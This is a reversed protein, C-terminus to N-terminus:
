GPLPEDEAPLGSLRASEAWLQRGTDPNYSAGASRKEARDAFYRGTLGAVEPATALWVVTDAGREPTREFPRALRTMLGFWGGTQRGFGTAVAGPHVCNATVGSGQLRRALEYTFVINALKSQAYARTTSYGTRLQLDEFHLRGQRQAESSLTIVRSPAGAQLQDLLLNTLLFPGVHNLALTAEVGDPTEQRKGFAAGASNVLVHIAPYREHLRAALERVSAPASLDALQVDLDADAGAGREVRARAAQARVPDRSVMVVTAGQSALATATAEGIGSSAGTVVCVRGAMPGTTPNM